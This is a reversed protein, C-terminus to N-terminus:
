FVMVRSGSVTNYAPHLGSCVCLIIITSVTCLPLSGLLYIITILMSVRPLAFPRNSLSAGLCSLIASLMELRANTQCLWFVMECVAEVMDKVMRGVMKGCHVDHRRRMLLRPRCSHRLPCCTRPLFFIARAGVVTVTRRVLSTGVKPRL